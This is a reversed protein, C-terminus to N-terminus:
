PRRVSFSRRELEIATSPVDIPLGDASAADTATPKPAQGHNMQQELFKALGVGGAKSMGLAIQQDFMQEYTEMADSGLLGSRDVTKRMEKMMMNLFLSEFQEAAAAKAKSPDSEATARMNALSGFDFWNSSAKVDM